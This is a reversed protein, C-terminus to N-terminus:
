SKRIYTEFQYANDWEDLLFNSMKVLSTTPDNEIDNEDIELITCNM